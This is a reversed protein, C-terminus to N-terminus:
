EVLLQKIVNGKETEVHVLYMGKAFVTTNLIYNDSNDTHTQSVKMGYLNYVSVHEVKLGVPHVIQTYTNAPNPVMQIVSSLNLFSEISAKAIFLTKYLTDNGCSNSLVLRVTYTGTTTYTHSPAVTTDTNGDGFDWSYKPIGTANIALFNYSQSSAANANISDAKPKTNIVVNETDKATCGNADRVTFIYKGAMAATVSTLVAASNTNSYSLPGSWLYTYAGTGGSTTSNLNLANGVCLPTNSSTSTTIKTSPETVTASTTATCGGTATVTVNYTGAKLGTINQTAANYGAPGTWAYVFPSSGGTTGLTITGTSDGKCLINSVTTSLTPPTCGGSAPVITLSTTACNDGTESFNNNVV